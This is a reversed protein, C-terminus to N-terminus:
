RMLQEIDDVTKVLDGSLVDCGSSTVLIDDEIRVGMNWWKEDLADSQRLYLGPEVTFTMNEAISVWADTEKYAGVDHVDMGLYHGINHMYYPKYAEIQILDDVNGQLIGLDVLGQTLVAVATKQLQDWPLGPKISEIVAQQAALVCEYIAQQAATFKGNAPFTRTIDSAYYEYECGADILVLDGDKVECRNAIYHLITANAGSAVIAEYAERQSGQCTFHHQLVAQLEYEQIGPKCAQMAMAHAKASIAAARRMSAIETPSKISRLASLIVSLDSVWQEPTLWQQLDQQLKRDTQPFYVTEKDALLAPMQQAFADIPYSASAGFENIVGQLGARPSEWQETAADRPRCFILLESGQESALLVAIAEPEELGTLYYFDSHQRYPYTVSGNRQCLPAAKIIAISNPAMKAVCDRRRALFDVNAM